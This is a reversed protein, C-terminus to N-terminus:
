NLKKELRALAELTKKRLKPKRPSDGGAPVAETKTRSAVLGRGEAKKEQVPLANAPEAAAQAPNEISTQSPAKLSDQSVAVTKAPAPQIAASTEVLPPEAAQIPLEGRGLGEIQLPLGPPPALSTVASARAVNPEHVSLQKEVSDAFSKSKAIEGMPNWPDSSAPNAPSPALGDQIANDVQEAVTVPEDAVTSGIEAGGLLPAASTEPASEPLAAEVVETEAKNSASLSLWSSIGWGAGLVFVVLLAGLAYRMWELSRGALAPQTQPAPASKEQNQTGAEAKKIARPLKNPHLARTRLADAQALFRRTIPAGGQRISASLARRVLENLRGPRGGSERVIKRIAFWTIRPPQIPQETQAIQNLVECARKIAHRAEETARGWKLLRLDYTGHVWRRWGRLIPESMMKRVMPSGVLLVQIMRIGRDQFDLWSQLRKWVGPTIDQADDLIILLRKEDQRLARLREVMQEVLDTEEGRACFGTQKLIAVLLYPYSGYAEQMLRKQGPPQDNEKSITVTVVEKELCKGALEALTSKGSEHSGTLVQVVAAERFRNTIRSLVIRQERTLDDLELTTGTTVAPTATASKPQGM